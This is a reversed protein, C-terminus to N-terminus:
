QKVVKGRQLYGSGDTLTYFYIGPAYGSINVPHDPTAADIITRGNADFVSIKYAGLNEGEFFIQSQAPNPSLNVRKSSETAETVPAKREFGSERCDIAISSIVAYIPKESCIMVTNGTTFSIPFSGMSGDDYKVFVKYCMHCEDAFRKFRICELDGCKTTEYSLCNAPPPPPPVAAFDMRITSLTGNMVALIAIRPNEQQMPNSFSTDFELLRNDANFRSSGTDYHDYGGELEPSLFYSAAGCSSMIKFHVPTDWPIAGTASQVQGSADYVTESYLTKKDRSMVSVSGACGTQGYTLCSCALALLFIANTITKM